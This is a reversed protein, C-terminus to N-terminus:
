YLLSRRLKSLQRPRKPRDERFAAALEPYSKSLDSLNLPMALQVVLADRCEKFFM